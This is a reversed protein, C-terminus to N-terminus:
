HFVCNHRISNHTVTLTAHGPKLATVTATEREVSIIDHDYMRGKYGDVVLGYGEESLTVEVFLCSLSCYSVPPLIYCIEGSM